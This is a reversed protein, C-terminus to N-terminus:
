HATINAMVPLHHEALPPIINKGQLLLSAMLSEVEAAASAPDRSQPAGPAGNM